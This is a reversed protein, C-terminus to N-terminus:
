PMVVSTAYSDRAVNVVENVWPSQRKERANLPLVVIVVRGDEFTVRATYSNREFPSYWKNGVLVGAEESFEVVADNHLHKKNCACM